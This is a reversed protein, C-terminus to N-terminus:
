TPVCVFDYTVTREDLDGFIPDREIYWRDVAIVTQPGQGTDSASCRTARCHKGLECHEHQQATQCPGEEVPFAVLEDVLGREEVAHFGLRNLWPPDVPRGLSRDVTRGAGNGVIGPLM